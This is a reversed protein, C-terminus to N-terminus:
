VEITYEYLRKGLLHVQTSSRPDIARRAIQMLAYVPLYSLEGGVDDLYIPREM